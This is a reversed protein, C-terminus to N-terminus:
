NTIKVETQLESNRLQFGHVSLFVSPLSTVAEM